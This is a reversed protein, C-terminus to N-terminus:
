CVSLMFNKSLYKLYNHFDNWLNIRNIDKGETDKIYNVLQRMSFNYKTHYKAYRVIDNSNYNKINSISCKKKKNIKLKIVYM